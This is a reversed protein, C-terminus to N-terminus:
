PRGSHDIYQMPQAYHLQPLENCERGYREEREPTPNLLTVQLSGALTWGKSMKEGVANEVEGRGGTIIEFKM